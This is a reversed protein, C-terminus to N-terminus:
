ADGGLDHGLKKLKEAITARGKSRNVRVANASTGLKKALAPGDAEGGSRLDEKAVLQQMRPLQEIVRDLDEFLRRREPDMETEDAQTPPDHELGEVPLREKALFDIAVNQAIGIFWAGLSGKADDFSDIYKWARFAAQYLLDERDDRDLQGGYKWRLFSKVKGGYKHLLLRLGLEEREMMRLAIDDDAVEAAKEDQENTVRPVGEEASGAPTEKGAAQDYVVRRFRGPTDVTAPM